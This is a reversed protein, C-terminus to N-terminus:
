YRDCEPQGKLASGLFKARWLRSVGERYTREIRSDAPDLVHDAAQMVAVSPDLEAPVAASWTALQDM